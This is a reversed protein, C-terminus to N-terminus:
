FRIQWTSTNHQLLKRAENKKGCVSYSFTHDLILFTNLLLSRLWSHMRSQGFILAIGWLEITLPCSCLSKTLVIIDNTEIILSDEMFRSEWWCAILVVCSHCSTLVVTKIWARKLLVQIWNINKMVNVMGVPRGNLALPVGIFGTSTKEYHKCLTYRNM